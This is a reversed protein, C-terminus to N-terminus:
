TPLNILNILNAPQLNLSTQVQNELKEMWGRGDVIWWFVEEWMGEGGEDISFRFDFIPL